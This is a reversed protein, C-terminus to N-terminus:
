LARLFFFLECFNNKEVALPDLGSGFWTKDFDFNFFTSKQGFFFRGWIVGFDATTGPGRCHLATATRMPAGGFARCNRFFQFFFHAPVADLQSKKALFPWFCHCFMPYSPWFNGRKPQCYGFHRPKPFFFHFKRTKPTKPSEPRRIRSLRRTKKIKQKKKTTKIQCKKSILFTQSIKKPM